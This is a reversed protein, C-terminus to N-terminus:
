LVELLVLRALLVYCVLQVVFFAFRVNVALSRGSVIHMFSQGVRAGFTVWAITAFAGELGLVAGSLVLAGFVPLNEVTNMHARNVRWYWDPGHKEGSPFGNPRARGRLVELVRHGGILHVLLPGWLAFCILPVLASTM